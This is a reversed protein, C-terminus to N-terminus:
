IMCVGEKRLILQNDRPIQADFRMFVHRWFLAKLIEKRAGETMLRSACFLKEEELTLQGLLKEHEKKSDFPSFNQFMEPLRCAFVEELLEELRAEKIFQKADM